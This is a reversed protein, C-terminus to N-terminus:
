RGLVPAGKFWRRITYVQFGTVAMFLVTELLSSLVMRSHSHENMAAHVMLRHREQSQRQQIEALIRRLTKLKERTSQFDEEKIGEQAATDEELLKDEEAMVKEEYSWVHGNANSGGMESEKRMDIEATITQHSAVMCFSYWGPKEVKFSKLYPAGDERVKSKQKAKHQEKRQRAELAVKRQKARREQRAEPTDKEGILPEDPTQLDELDVEGLNLHEFDVVESFKLMNPDHSGRELKTAGEYLPLGSDINLSAIPGSFQVTGKLEAGSLIFVSMTVLESRSPQLLRLSPSLRLLQLDIQIVVAVAASVVVEDCVRECQM